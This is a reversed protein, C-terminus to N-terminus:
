DIDYASGEQNMWSDTSRKIQALATRWHFEATKKNIGLDFAAEKIRQRLALVRYAVMARMTKGRRIYCVRCIGPHWGDHRRSVFTTRHYPSGCSPCYLDNVSNCVGRALLIWSARSSEDGDVAREYLNGLQPLEDHAPCCHELVTACYGPDIAVAPWNDWALAYARPPRVLSPKAILLAAGAGREVQASKHPLPPLPPPGDVTSAAIGLLAVVCLWLSHRPQSM